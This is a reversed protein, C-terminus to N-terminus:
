EHPEEEPDPGLDEDQVWVLSFWVGFGIAVIWPAVVGFVIWRPIGLITKLEVADSDYGFFYCYTVTYIGAVLWGLFAVWAERRAHLYVPDDPAERSPRRDEEM